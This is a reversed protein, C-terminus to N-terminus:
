PKVPWKWTKRLWLDKKEKRKSLASAYFMMRKILEEQQDEEKSLEIIKFLEPNDQKNIIFFNPSPNDTKNTLYEVSTNLVNAMIIITQISPTRTGNEYRVYAPQSLRMRKAAEMKTIGMKKRQETLRVINITSEM